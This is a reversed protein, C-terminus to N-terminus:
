QWNKLRDMASRADAETADLWQQMLNRTQASPMVRRGLWRSCLSPDAQLIEALRRQTVGLLRRRTEVATLLPDVLRGQEDRARTPETARRAQAGIHGLVREFRLNVSTALRDIDRRLGRVAEGLLRVDERLRDDATGATRGQQATAVAEKVRAEMRADWQSFLSDIKAGLDERLKEDHRQIYKRLRPSIANDGHVVPDEHNTM